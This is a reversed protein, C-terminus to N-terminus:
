IKGADVLVVTLRRSYIQSTRTEFKLGFIVNELTKKRQGELLISSSSHVNGEMNKGNM